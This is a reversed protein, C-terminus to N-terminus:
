VHYPYEGHVKYPLSGPSHRELLSAGTLQDRRSEDSPEGSTEPLGVRVREEDLEPQPSHKQSQASDKRLIARGVRMTRDSTTRTTLMMKMRKRRTKKEGELRGKRVAKTMAGDTRQERLLRYRVKGWNKEVENVAQDLEDCTEVLQVHQLELQEKIKQHPPLLLVQQCRVMAAVQDGKKMEM